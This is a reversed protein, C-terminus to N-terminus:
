GLRKKSETELSMGPKIQREKLRKGRGDRFIRRAGDWIPIASREVESSILSAGGKFVRVKSKRKVL